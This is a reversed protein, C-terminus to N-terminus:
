VNDINIFGTSLSILQQSTSSFSLAGVTFRSATSATTDVLVALFVSVDVDYMVAGPALRSTSIGKEIPDPNNGAIGFKDSIGASEAADLAGLATPDGYVQDNRKHITKRSYLSDPTHYIVIETMVHTFVCCNMFDNLSSTDNSRVNSPKYTYQFPISKAETWILREIQRKLRASTADFYGFYKDTTHNHMDIM